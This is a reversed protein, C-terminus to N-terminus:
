LEKETAEVDLSSASYLHKEKKSFGSCVNSLCQISNIKYQKEPILLLSKGM